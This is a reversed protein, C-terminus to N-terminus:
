VSDKLRPSGLGSNRHDSDGASDSRSCLRSQGQAFDLRTMLDRTSLRSNLRASSLRARGLDPHLINARMSKGFKVNRFLMQTRSLASRLYM